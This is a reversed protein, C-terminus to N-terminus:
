YFFKELNKNSQVNLFHQLSYHFLVQLFLGTSIKPWRTHFFQDIEDIVHVHGCDISISGDLRMCEDSLMDIIIVPVYQFYKANSRHSIYYSTLLYSLVFNVNFSIWFVCYTDHIFGVAPLKVILGRKCLCKATKATLYTLILPYETDEINLVIYIYWVTFIKCVCNGM